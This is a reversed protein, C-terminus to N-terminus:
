PPHGQAREEAAATGAAEEDTQDAGGSACLPGLLPLHGSM